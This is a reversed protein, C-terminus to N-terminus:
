FSFNNKGGNKARYMAEDAHTLLTDLEEGDQPYLAIGISTTVPIEQGEQLSINAVKKILRQAVKSVCEKGSGEKLIIAFEDGGIRALIEEDRLATRVQKAVDILLEDGAKHGLADNLQKFFDLDLYLVSFPNNTRTASARTMLFHQGLIERGALGTLSDCKSRYLEEQDEIEKLRTNHQICLLEDIHKIVNLPDVPKFLYENAGLQIAKVAHEVERHATVMTCVMDSSTKRLLPILDLGSEQNLQIDLLAMDPTIAKLIEVVESKNSATLIQYSTDLELVTAISELVDIDDDVLLIVKEQEVFDCDLETSNETTM